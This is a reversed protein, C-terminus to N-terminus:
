TIFGKLYFSNLLQQSMSEVIIRDKAIKYIETISDLRKASQKANAINLNKFDLWYKCNNDKKSVSFYKELSLGTSKDPPHNVDFTNDNKNYVIDLEVGSFHKQSNHFKEINNTKHSLIKDNFLFLLTRNSLFSLVIFLVVIVSIIVRNKVSFKKKIM